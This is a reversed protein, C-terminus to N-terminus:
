YLSTLLSLEQWGKPRLETVEESVVLRMVLGILATLNLSFKDVDFFKFAVVDSHRLVLFVTM